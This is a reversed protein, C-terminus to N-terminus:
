TEHTLLRKLSSLWVATNGPALPTDGCVLARISEAGTRTKGFGRGALILWNDWNGEPLWQDPRAHFEWLYKLDEIENDPLQDVIKAQQEKTM